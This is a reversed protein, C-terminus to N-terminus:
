KLPLHVDPLPEDLHRDIFDLVRSFREAYAREHPKKM